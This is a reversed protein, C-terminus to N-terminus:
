RAKPTPIHANVARNLRNYRRAQSRKLDRKRTSAKGEGIVGWENPRPLAPSQSEQAAKEAYTDWSQQERRLDEALSKLGRLEQESVFSGSKSVTQPPRTIYGESNLFVLPINSGASWLPYRFCVGEEIIVGFRFPFKNRRM